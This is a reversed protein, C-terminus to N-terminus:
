LQGQPGTVAYDDWRVHCQVSRQSHKVTGIDEYYAATCQRVCVSEEGDAHVQEISDM